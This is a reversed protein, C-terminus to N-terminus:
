LYSICHFNYYRSTNINLYNAFIVVKDASCGYAQVESKRNWVYLRKGTRFGVTGKTGISRCSEIDEWLKFSKPGGSFPKQGERLFIYDSRHTGM